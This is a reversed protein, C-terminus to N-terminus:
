RKCVLMSYAEITLVSSTYCNKGNYDFIVEYENNDQYTHQWMCPNIIIMLDSTKYILCEYYDVFEGICNNFDYENRLKILDKFYNVVSAYENRRFWDIKNINEDCNYSNEVLQKTRLFEQGMHIFPIGKSIMVLSMALKAKNKNNDLSDANFKMLRDFFTYGDHCEVYNISQKHNLYNNNGAICKKVDDRVSGNGFIFSTITDRYYDNFMYVNTLKNHNNISARLSEDLVDGMNWGEGYVIFDKKISKLSNYILNVTEYDLIGMLDIRIGDIDFLELYRTCMLLLYERVFLDESKIENGCLSGKALSGDVMKRFAHGGLMKDLDFSAADYVHNFVVDLSVRLGNRHIANITNRLENIYAYPDIDDCVYDKTVYNYAIPNYGWNYDSYDKDFALVPMLQIHSIGLEKLYDIGISNDNQKLGSESFALFKRAYKGNFSQDCSFDRVNAEYIILESYDDLAIKENNFKAKDLVYSYKDDSYYAFPDKFTIGLDNEYYYKAKQLDGEVITKYYFGSKHMEIKQNNIILFVKKSEPAFVRFITNNSSYFSGLEKIDFDNNTYNVM